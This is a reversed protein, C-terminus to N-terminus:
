EMTYLQEVVYQVISSCNQIWAGSDRHQKVAIPDSLDVGVLEKCYLHGYKRTFEQVLRNAEKRAVDKAAEAPQSFINPQRHKLGLYVAAGSVAGCVADRNGAIGGLFATTSWILDESGLDTTEWM